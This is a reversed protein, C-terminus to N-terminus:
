SLLEQVAPMWKLTFSWELWWGTYQPTSAATRSSNSTIAPHTIEGRLSTFSVGEGVGVGFIEGVGVGVAVGVGVGVPTIPAAIERDACNRNRPSVVSGTILPKLNFASPRSEGIGPDGKAM